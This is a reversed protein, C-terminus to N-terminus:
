IASLLDGNMCQTGNWSFIESNSTEIKVARNWPEQPDLIVVRNLRLMSIKAYFVKRIIYSTGDTMCKLTLLSRACSEM